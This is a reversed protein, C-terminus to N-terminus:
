ATATPRPMPPSARISARSCRDGIILINKSTTDNVQEFAPAVSDPAEGAAAAVPATFLKEAFTAKKLGTKGIVEDDIFSVAAFLVLTLLAILWVTLYNKM